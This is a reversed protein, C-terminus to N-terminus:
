SLVVKYNNSLFEFHNVIRNIEGFVIWQKKQIAASSALSVQM